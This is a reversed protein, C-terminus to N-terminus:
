PSIAGLSSQLTQNLQATNAILTGYHAADRVGSFDIVQRLRSCFQQMAICTILANSSYQVSLSCHAQPKRRLLPGNYKDAKNKQLYGTLGSM